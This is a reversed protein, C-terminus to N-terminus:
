KVNGRRYENGIYQNIRDRKYNDFEEDEKPRHSLKLGKTKNRSVPEYLKGGCNYSANDPDDNRVPKSILGERFAIEGYNCYYFGLGLKERFRCDKPCANAVLQSEDVIASQISMGTRLKLKRKYERRYERQGTKKCEDSCYIQPPATPIFEKGCVECKKTVYKKNM